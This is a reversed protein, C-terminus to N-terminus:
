RTLKFSDFFRRYEPSDPNVSPGAVTLMFARDQVVYCHAHVQIETDMVKVAFVYARGRNKGFAVPKESVTQVTLSKLEAEKDMSDKLGDLVQDPTSKKLKAPLKSYGAAYVTTGEAAAFGESTTGAFAGANPDSQPMGGAPMSVTFGGDKHTYQEWGAPTDKPAPPPADPASTGAPPPIAPGAVPRAVNEKAPKLAPYDEDFTWGPPVPGEVTCIAKFVEDSMGKKIFRVSGDCTLVYTGREGKSDTSLFPELSNKDPVSRVTSSGGAMWPTVGAPGDYPVRILLVTNSLGRGKESIIKLPTARDYGFVGLKGAMAPDGFSAEAADAGVGAIGVYHTAACDVLIGPYPAYHSYPPYSPDLFEPVVARAALWNPGDNWSKDFHIGSYLAGHGLYPLLGAMWSIRHGPERATRLPSPPRVFVGPPFTEPPVSPPLGKQGLMKGAEALQFRYDGAAAIDAEGALGLAMLQVASRMNILGGGALLLDLNCDVTKDNTSIKFFNAKAANKASASKFQNKPDAKLKDDLILDVKTALVRNCFQIVQPGVIDNIDTQLQQAETGTNCALTNNFTYGSVDKTALAMGVYEIRDTQEDLLNVIDWFPRVRYGVTGAGDGEKGRIAASRLHTASSVLVKQGPASSEMHGLMERLAPKVTLYPQTTFPANRNPPNAEFKGNAKLYLLMPEPHAFVLTQADRLHVLLPRPKAEPPQAALIHAPVFLSLKALALVWPGNKQILYCKLKTTNEPWEKLDMAQILPRMDAIPQTTHVVHFTWRDTYNEATVIDDIGQQPFGVRKLLEADGFPGASALALKGPPSDAFDKFFFHYVAESNRPLFNTNAAGGPGGKAAAGAPPDNDETQKKGVDKGKGKGGKATKPGKGKPQEEDDPDSAAKQQAGPPTPAKAVPKTDGSFVGSIFLAAVGLIVVGIAAVGVGILLKTNPPAGAKKGKGKGKPVEDEEDDEEERRRKAPVAGKGAARAKAPVEEAEIVDDEAAATKPKVPAEKKKGKDGAAVEKKDQAAPDEVVFRYKCKPCDVKKGILTADKIPVMAECSPCQQKFNGSIAM